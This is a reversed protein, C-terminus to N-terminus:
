KGERAKSAGEKSEPPNTTSQITASELAAMFSDVNAMSGAAFVGEKPSFVGAPFGNYQVYITFPRVTVGMSCEQDTRHPNVAFWWQDDLKVEWCGPNLNLRSIGRSEAYECIALFVNKEQVSEASM